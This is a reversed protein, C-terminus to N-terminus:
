RRLDFRPYFRRHFRPDFRRVADEGDQGVLGVRGESFDGRLDAFGDARDLSGGFEHLEAVEAVDAGLFAAVPFDEGCTVLGAAGEPVEGLTTGVSLVFFM